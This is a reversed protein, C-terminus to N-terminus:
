PLSSSNVWPMLDPGVVTEPRTKWHCSELCTTTQGSFIASPLSFNGLKTFSDCYGARESRSGMAGRSRHAKRQRECIRQAACRRDVKPSTSKAGGREGYNSFSYCSWIM